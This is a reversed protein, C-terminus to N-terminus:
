YSKENQKNNIILYNCYQFNELDKAYRVPQIENFLIKYFSFSFDKFFDFVDKLLIGADIYTGGYELQIIKINNEELMRKAGKLVEMENGEVDIKLFDIKQIKNDSCYDDLKKIAVKETVVKNKDVLEDRLYLSNVTSDNDFIYFAKEENASGLGFNNFVVNKSDINQELKSFTSRGPEFCYVKANPIIGLVTKTWDGVNAGVDFVVDNECLYKKLALMEGNTDIECNNEGRHDFVLRKAVRYIFNNSSILYFIKRLINM